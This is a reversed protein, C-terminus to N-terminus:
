SCGVHMQTGVVLSLCYTHLMSVHNIQHTVNSSVWLRCVRESQQYSRSSEEKRQSKVWGTLIESARCIRWWWWWWRRWWWREAPWEHIVDDTQVCTGASSQLDVCKMIEFCQWCKMWVPARNLRCIDSRHFAHLKDSPQAGCKVGNQFISDAMKLNGRKECEESWAIYLAAQM